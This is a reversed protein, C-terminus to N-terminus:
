SMILSLVVFYFPEEKSHLHLLVKVLELGELKNTEHIKTLNQLILIKANSLVVFIDEEPKNVIRINKSWAVV